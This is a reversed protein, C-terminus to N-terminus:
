LKLGIWDPTNGDGDTLTNRNAAMLETIIPTGSLVVRAELSECVLRRPARTIRLRRFVM